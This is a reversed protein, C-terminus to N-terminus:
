AVDYTQFFGIMPTMAEDELLSMDMPVHGVDTPGFDEVTLVRDIISPFSPVFSEIGSLDSESRDEFLAPNRDMVADLLWQRGEDTILGLSDEVQTWDLLMDDDSIDSLTSLDNTINANVVDTVTITVTHVVGQTGDSALLTVDYVNDFNADAPNEFDPPTIFSLEGTNQDITFLANDAGAGQIFYTLTSDDTDVDTATLTYAFTSNETVSVAAASTVVPPTDDLDQVTLFITQTSTTTGDDAQVTIEYVNDLNADVPNEFDRFSAVGLIFTDNGRQLILGSSADAGGVISYTIPAGTDSVADLVLADVGNFLRNENVVTTNPSAFQVGMVDDVTIAVSQVATSTGDSATIEVDYVNDTNADGPAEFDPSSVFRVEGTAVNISFLAADVGGTISYTVPVLNDGDVAVATYAPTHQWQFGSLVGPEVQLNEPTNATAGSTFVVPIDADNRVTYIYAQTQTNVGDSVTLNFEYINDNDTDTPNEFDLPTPIVLNNNADVTFAAADTGSLTFTLTANEPDVWTVDLDSTQQAFGPAQFLVSSAGEFGSRAFTLSGMFGSPIATPAENVDTLQLSVNETTSLSGDSATVAGTIINGQLIGAEFDLPFQGGVIIAGTASDITFFFSANGSLSYTVTSGEPDTAGATFFVGTTNEAVTTPFPNNFTPVENVDNVTIGFLQSTTNVGDDIQITLEYFSDTNADTPNEFDLGAVASIEGTASDMTFLAADPGGIISYSPTGGDPDTSTTTYFVTTSNEDVAVTGSSTFTPAVDNVDTVGITVLQANSFTGDSATIEVEYGNDTGTDTPNEFDPFALFSVDGTVANIVFLSADAGGTISFTSPVASGPTAAAASYAVGVANEAFNTASPSSFVPGEVAVDQVTVAVAQTSSNVGDSATLVVDYVNDAGIDTPNEFDPGAIFSVAGTSSDVIFLAADAGGSISYSLTDGDGDTAVATYGTATLNEDVAVSAGSTFVPTLDNVNTVTVAVAATDTFTGDSAEVNVDYVNDAGADGPAEFDPAAIFSLAGTTTDIAFLAADAGGAISFTVANGDADTATATFGTATANEGVSVPGGTVVPANDNLNNVTITVAQDTQLAGDDARVIIEYDNGVSADGPSEFDPAAVFSVIGTTSDIAFLAADAGGSISYTVADGDVDTAAVTYNATTSNEGVAASAGSTITPAENVDTVTVAVAQETSLTSSSATVTVDYVNNAGADGPAEFDPASVFELQGTAANITFAAADAGGTISYAIVDGDQDSAPVVYSTVTQNEAISVAGSVDFQPADDADIVTARVQQQTSQIGDSVEITFLYENNTDADVRTEFDPANTFSVAGTSADITFFSADPGGVITYTLPTGDPDAVIPTYFASTSNEATSVTGSNTFTPAVDNENTVSIAVNQTATDTGDFASIEIDYVNDAGADGPAEFDAAAILQVDGTSANITFQTADAGGSISYTVPNGNPDVALATYATATSNESISGTAGSSFIPAEAVVDTVSITVSQTATNVGDSVTVDVDYTNDAGTDGPNEFDPAAIFSLAGTASDITFLASDVGGSISFSLTDGDGDTAAGSYGTVTLNEDVSATGGSTFVPIEDNLNTVTIAVFATDTAVGDSAEVDVDYVNDAGVDGPQDFDPAAIFSLAGTSADIAFLAADAGGSISFTVANGDADTATATFGTTVSNEAVSAAGGTIVPANDNLNNISIAVAQNSQFTGDDARVIINYTNNAGADTPAEFDPSNVFSVAGTASDITFQAADAGGSISYTLTDGDGDTAAVSFPSVTGNEDFAIVASSTFVPSNDNINTLTVAITQATTNAGDNATVIVDFVNDANADSPTDFDPAAIFSLAGTTADVAFLSADAGGTITYTAAGGDADTTVAVYGTATTNEALSATAGSTFVPASDNANTVTVTVTQDDTLTGDSVQVVVEYQNDANGDAPAEFDQGAAFALAGTASDIVFLAADAGGTITYTLTDGDADTATATYGIDTENESVTATTASTLIPANDNENTVTIVVSQSTSLVGDSASVTINYVNDGGADAPAEFDPTSRFTVAGSAADINFLAADTGSLTYSIADGNGDSASASYATGTANEAFSGTTGSSFVPAVNDSGEESSVLAVIAGVAAFAGGVMLLSNGSDSVMYPSLDNAVSAEVYVEGNSLTFTGPPLIAESGDAMSVLLSGDANLSVSAVDAMDNALVYGVPANVADAASAESALAFLGISSLMLSSLRAKNANLKIQLKVM